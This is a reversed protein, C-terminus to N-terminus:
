TSSTTTPGSSSASSTTPRSRSGQDLPPNLDDAEVKFTPLYFVPIPGIYFFNQRADILWTLDDKDFPVAGNNKALERDDVVQRVDISRSTFRYGPNAFRSGTTVTQEAQM